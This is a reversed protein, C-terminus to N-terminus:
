KLKKGTRELYQLPIFISHVLRVSVAKSINFELSRSILEREIREPLYLYNGGALMPKSLWLLQKTNWYQNKWVYYQIFITKNLCGATSLIKM